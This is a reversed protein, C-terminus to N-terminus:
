WKGVMATSQGWPKNKTTFLKGDTSDQFENRGQASHFAHDSIKDYTYNVGNIVHCNATGCTMKPSYPLGKGNADVQVPVMAGGAMQMGIEEFTYLTVAPHATPAGLTGTITSPNHKDHCEICTKTGMNAATHENVAGHCGSCAGAVFEPNHTSAHCDSCAMSGSPKTYHISAQVASVSAAHCKSCYNSGVTGAKANTITFTNKEVSAKVIPGPMTQHCSVCDIANGKHASAEWAPVVAQTAASANLHCTSTCNGMELTNDKKYTATVTVASTIGTITVKVPGRFPLTVADGFRDTLKVQAAPLEVTGAKAVVTEVFNNSGTPTVTLRVTGYVDANPNIPAIGNPVYGAQGPLLASTSVALPKKKYAAVVSRVRSGDKPDIGVTQEDPTVITIKQGNVLIYEIKYGDAADVKVSVPTTDLYNKVLPKGVTTFAPDTVLGRTVTLNGGLNQNQLQLQWTKAVVASDSAVAFTAVLTQTALPAPKVFSVPVAATQNAAVAVATGNKTLASIKYGPEPTVVVSVAASTTFNTYKIGLNQAANDRVQISGGIVPVYTLKDGVTVPKTGLSNIKTSISYTTAAWSWLASMVTLCVLTALGKKFM